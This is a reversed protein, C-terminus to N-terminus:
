GNLLLFAFAAAGILAFTNMNVPKAAAQAAAITGPKGTDAGTTKSRCQQAGSADLYAEGGGNACNQAFTPNITGKMTVLGAALKSYFADSIFATSLGPLSTAMQFTPSSLTSTSPVATAACRTALFAEIEEVIVLAISKLNANSLSVVGETAKLFLTVLESLEPTDRFAAIRAEDVTFLDTSTNRKAVIADSKARTFTTLASAFAMQVKAVSDASYPGLKPLVRAPLENWGVWVADMCTGTDTGFGFYRSTRWDSYM